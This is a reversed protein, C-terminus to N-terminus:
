HDITFVRMGWSEGALTYGKAQLEMLIRDTGPHGETLVVPIGTQIRGSLAPSGGWDVFYADPSRYRGDFVSLDGDGVLFLVQPAGRLERGLFETDVAISDRASSDILMGQSVSGPPGEVRMVRLYTAGSHVAMVLIAAMPIALPNMAPTRLIGARELGAFILLLGCPLAWWTHRTDWVPVVMTLSAVTLGVLGLWPISSACIRRAHIWQAILVVVTVVCVASALVLFFYLYDWNPATLLVYWGRASLLGGSSDSWSSVLGARNEWLVVIVGAGLALAPIAKLKRHGARTLAGRRWSALAVLGVLVVPIAQERYVRALNNWTDWGGSESANDAWQLPWIIAQAVYDDLSGTGLLVLLVGGFTLGVGALVSWSAPGLRRGRLVFVIAGCVGVVLLSSVGFSLRTFPVLGLAAGAVIGELSARRAKGMERLALARTLFYIGLVTLAVALVPPWPLMPIGVWVDALLFWAIASWWGVRRSIPWALPRVRGMDAMAFVTIAILASNAIRLALVPGVPLFLALSQMWPTVPGYQGFVQSHMTFGQHVALAQAVMYGDHHRDIDLRAFPLLLLFTLLGFASAPLGSLM